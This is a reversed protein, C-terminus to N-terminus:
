NERPVEDGRLRHTVEFKVRSDPAARRVVTEFMSEEPPPGACSSGIRKEVLATVRYTGPRVLMGLALRLVELWSPQELWTPEYRDADASPKMSTYHM